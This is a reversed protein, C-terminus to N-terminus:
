ASGPSSGPNQSCQLDSDWTIVVVSYRRQEESLEQWCMRLAREGSKQGISSGLVPHIRLIFGGWMRMARFELPGLVCLGEAERLEGVSVCAAAAPMKLDAPEGERYKSPHSDSSIAEDRLVLPSKSSGISIWSVNVLALLNGPFTLIITSDVVKQHTGSQAGRVGWTLSFSGKDLPCM